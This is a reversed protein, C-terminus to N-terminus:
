TPIMVRTNLAATASAIQQQPQRVMRTDMSIKTVAEQLGSTIRQLPRPASLVVMLTQTSPLPPGSIIPLPGLHVLPTATVTEIPRPLPESTIRLPLLLGSPTGM